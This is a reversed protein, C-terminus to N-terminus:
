KASANGYAFKMCLLLINLATGIANAVIIIPDAKFIGYVMWLMTGSSFLIMLYMSLDRLSKTRYGKVIQPLFSSTTLVAAIIGFLSMPFDPLALDRLLFSLPLLTM